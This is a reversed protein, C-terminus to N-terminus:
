KELESVKGELDRKEGETIEISLTLTTKNSELIQYAGKLKELDLLTDDYKIKLKLGEGREKRLTEKMESMKEKLQDVNEVMKSVNVANAQSAALGVMTLLQPYEDIMHMVMDEIVMIAVLQDGSKMRKERRRVIRKKDPDFFIKDLNM